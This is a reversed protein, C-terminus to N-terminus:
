GHGVAEVIVVREEVSEIGFETVYGLSRARSDNEVAGGEIGGAAALDEVGAYDGCAGRL